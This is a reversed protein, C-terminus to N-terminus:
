GPEGTDVPDIGSRDNTETRREIGVLPKGGACYFEEGHNFVKGAQLNLPCCIKDNQYRCDKCLTVNRIEYTTGDDWFSVRKIEGDRIARFTERIEWLTFTEDAFFSDCNMAKRMIGDLAM